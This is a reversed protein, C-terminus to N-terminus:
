KLTLEFTQNVSVDVSSRIIVTYNGFDYEQLIDRSLELSWLVNSLKRTEVRWKSDNINLSTSKTVALSTIEQYALVKFHIYVTDKINAKFQQSPSLCIYAP